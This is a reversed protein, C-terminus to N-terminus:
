RPDLWPWLRKHSYSQGFVAALVREPHESRVVASIHPALPLPRTFETYRRYGHCFCWPGERSANGLWLDPLAYTFLHYLRLSFTLPLSAAAGRPISGHKGWQVDITVQQKPWPAHLV